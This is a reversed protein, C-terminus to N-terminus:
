RREALRAASAGAVMGSKWAWALNFGGCAGDVDVAEGCVFVGPVDPCALTLADLASVDVGGATVQARKEDATGTVLLEVAKARAAVDEVTGGRKVLQAAVADDLLGATGGRAALERATGADVEPLLDLILRDGPLTNRSLDFSVIGSIGYPRFLLEGAEHAITTDGRMLTAAVRARRGDLAPFDLGRCALPCLVPRVDVLPLGLGRALSSEGGGTAIVVAQAGLTERRGGEFAPVLELRYDSAMRSVGAVERGCALTVHARDARAVLVERVSSAERTVPYLRGGEEEAVALGCASFFGLVDPLFREGCVASVFGPHRYREASLYTNALNCRGGGTALISRGCELTREIVVVRAGAEAATIAAALGSAGGGM